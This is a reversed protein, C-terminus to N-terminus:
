EESFLAAYVFRRSLYGSLRRARCVNGSRSAETVQHFGSTQKRRNATQGSLRHVASPLFSFIRLHFLGPRICFHERPKGTCQAPKKALRERQGARLGDHPFAHFIATVCEQADQETQKWAGKEFTWAMQVARMRIERQSVARGDLDSPHEFFQVAPKEFLRAGPLFQPFCLAAGIRQCAETFAQAAATRGDSTKM